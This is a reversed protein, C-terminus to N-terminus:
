SFRPNPPPCIVERAMKIVAEVMGVHHVKRSWGGTKTVDAVSPPNFDKVLKGLLDNGAQTASHGTDNSVRAYKEFADTLKERKDNKVCVVFLTDRELKQEVLVYFEGNFEFTGYARDFGRSQLPYPISLPIKFEYTQLEAYDGSELRASLRAKAKIHLGWFLIYYGGVNFLFVVLFVIAVVRKM